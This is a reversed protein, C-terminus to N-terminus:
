ASAPSWPAPATDVPLSGLRADSATLPDPRGASETGSGDSGAVGAPLATPLPVARMKENSQLEHELLMETRIVAAWSAADSWGRHEQKWQPTTSCIEGGGAKEERVVAGWAGGAGSFGIAEGGAAVAGRAAVAGAAAAAGAVAAAGAATGGATAWRM